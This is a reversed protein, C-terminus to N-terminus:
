NVTVVFVGICEVFSGRHVQSSAIYRIDLELLPMEETM